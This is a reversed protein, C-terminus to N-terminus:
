SFLRLARPSGPPIEHAAMRQQLEAVKARIGDVMTESLVHGQGDVLVGGLGEAMQRAVTVMRNFAAPGAAVRPVDLTFTIGTCAMTKLGDAEFLAPGMNGVAFLTRGEDDEAHFLGDDRLELGMAEALGRLKTGAFAAGDAAVVNVGLQVDVGACFSDLAQAHALVQHRAPLEVQGAFQQALARVGDLFADVEAESVAGERDALQLAAVVNAYSGADHATLPRWQREDYGLWTLTKSIRPAWEAQAAWLAPAAAPEAFEIRLLCEAIGDIWDAPVDSPAGDQVQAPEAMPEIREGADAVPEVREDGGGDGQGKLLADSQGGNFIKEALKRHAREQWVNYGWVAGVAALGAGLLAIQLESM